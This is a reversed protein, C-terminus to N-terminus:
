GDGGEKLLAAYTNSHPVNTFVPPNSHSRQKRGVMRWDDDSTAQMTTLAPTFVGANHMSGNGGSEPVSLGPAPVTAPQPKVVWVKQTPKEKSSVQKKQPQVKRACDHGVKNCKSCFPPAWEFVVKQEILAGDPSEFWINKPLTKTVDVEILFRAFSVRLQKSTCEDACLPVGLVSGLRSLTDVGWCNLPLNPLKVWMPVNRLVEAHFDFKESWPKVIAAKGFFMHPSANLVVNMDDSNQFKILFYGDDHWFVDPKAETIEAQQLMAISKGDKVM